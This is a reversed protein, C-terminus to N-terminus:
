PQDETVFSYAPWPGTCVVEAAPFGPLAHARARFEGVKQAEVLYAVRLDDRVALLKSAVALPGFARDLDEALRAATRQQDLKGLLWARGSVPAQTGSAPLAIRVGMELRGRVRDLLQHLQGARRALMTALTAREPLTHGYRVPVVGHPLLAQVVREHEVLRRGTPQPQEAHDSVIAALDGASVARLEAGDIGPVPPVPVPARLVGYTHIV